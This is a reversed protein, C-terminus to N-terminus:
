IVTLQYTCLADIEFEFKTGFIVQHFYTGQVSTYVYQRYKCPYVTWHWRHKISPTEKDKSALLKLFFFNQKPKVIRLRLISRRVIPIITCCGTLFLVSWLIHQGHSKVCTKLCNTLILCFGVSEQHGRPRLTLIHYNEFNSSFVSSYSMKRLAKGQNLFHIKQFFESLGKRSGRPWSAM